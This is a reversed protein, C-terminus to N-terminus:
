SGSGPSSPPSESPPRGERRAGFAEAKKKAWKLLRHVPPFYDALIMLGPILFLWGPLIPLILGAVGILTLALGSTLRAASKLSAVL